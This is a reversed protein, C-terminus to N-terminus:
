GVSVGRVIVHGLTNIQWGSINSKTLSAAPVEQTVIVPVDSVFIDQLRAYLDKRKAQDLTTAAQDALQAAEANQWQDALHVKLDYAVFYNPDAFGPFVNWSVDFDHARYAPSWVAREMNQLQLTVGAQQLGAQWITAIKEGESYGNLLNVSFTFGNPYGAEALLAKAKQPDYPYGDEEKYAWSDRPVWSWKPRGEGAFAVKQVAAKDLCMALAQRVKANSRIPESNKGMLELIHISSTSQIIPKITTSTKFTSAQALPVDLIGDIAGAQMNTIAVQPDPIIKFVIKDVRALDKEFYGPYRQLTIHDNPVWEVFQFPGSGVPKKDLDAEVEPPLISLGVLGDIFDAQPAKLTLKITYKDLVQYADIGAVRTAYVAKKDAIRKFSFEVHSAEVEQGNHYTVGQRLHFIYTKDDPNDWKEALDPLYELNPGYRVLANFVSLRIVNNYVLAQNTHPDASEIDNAAAITILPAITAPAAAAAASTTPAAAAAAVTPAAASTPVAAAPTAPAVTAQAAPAPPASTPAPATPSVPPAAAPQTPAASCAALLPAGGGVLLVCYRTSQRRTFYAPV